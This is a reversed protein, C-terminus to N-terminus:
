PDTEGDHRSMLDEALVLLTLELMGSYSVSLVSLVEHDSFHLQSM